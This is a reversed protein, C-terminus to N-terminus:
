SPIAWGDDMAIPAPIVAILLDEFYVNKLLSHSVFSNLSHIEVALHQTKEIVNCCHRGM